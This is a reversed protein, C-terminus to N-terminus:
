KIPELELVSMDYFIGLWDKNIPYWYKKNALETNFEIAKNTIAAREFESSGNERASDITQQIAQREIIMTKDKLPGVIAGILCILLTCAAIAAATFGIYFFCDHISYRAAVVALIIGVVLAIGAIIVLLM